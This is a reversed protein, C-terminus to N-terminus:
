ISISVISLEWAGVLEKAFVRLAAVLNLKNEEDGILKEFMPEFVVLTLHQWQLFFHRITSLLLFLWKSSMKRLKWSNAPHFFGLEPRVTTSWKDVGGRRSSNAFIYQFHTTPLILQHKFHFKHTLPAM